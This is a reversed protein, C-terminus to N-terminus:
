GAQKENSIAELSITELAGLEEEILGLMDQVHPLLKSCATICFELKDLYTTLTINM